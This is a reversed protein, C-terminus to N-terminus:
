EDIVITATSTLNAKARAKGAPKFLSTDKAYVNFYAVKEDDKGYSDFLEDLNFLAVGSENSKKEAMFEPTGKEIDAIIRVMAGETLIYDGSRVYVKLVSPEKDACSYLVAVLLAAVIILARRRFPM